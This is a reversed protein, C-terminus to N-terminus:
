KILGDGHQATVWDSSQCPPVRIQPPPRHNDIVPDPLWGMIYRILDAPVRYKKTRGVQNRVGTRRFDGGLQIRHRLRKSTSTSPVCVLNLCTRGDCM